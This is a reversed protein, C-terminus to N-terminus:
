SESGRVVLGREPQQLRDGGSDRKRDVITSSGGDSGDAATRSQFGVFVRDGVGGCHRHRHAATPMGSVTHDDTVDDERVV